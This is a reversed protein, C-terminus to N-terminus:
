SIFKEKPTMGHVATPIRNMIYVAITVTEAQFYNPLNKENLMARAIKSIHM